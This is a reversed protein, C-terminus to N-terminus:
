VVTIPASRVIQTSTPAKISQRLEDASLSKGVRVSTVDASKIQYRDDRQEINVIVRTIVEQAGEFLESVPVGDNLGPNLLVVDSIQVRWLFSIEGMLWLKGGIRYWDAKRVSLLEYWETARYSYPRSDTISAPLSDRSFNYRLFQTRNSIADHILDYGQLADLRPLDRSSDLPEAIFSFLDDLTRCYFLKGSNERRNGNLEVALEPHLSEVGFAMADDSVLFVRNAGALAADKAALWLLADRAGSGPKTWSVSAPRVRGIERRLADQYHEPRIPVITIDRSFTDIAAQIAERPPVLEPMFELSDQYNSLKRQATQMNEWAQIYNRYYRTQFENFILDPMSISIHAASALQTLLQWLRHSPHTFTLMISTDLFIVM